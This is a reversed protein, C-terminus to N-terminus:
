ITNRGMIVTIKTDSSCRLLDTRSMKENSIGPAVVVVMVVVVVVVAVGVMVVIGDPRGELRGGDLDVERRVRAGGM